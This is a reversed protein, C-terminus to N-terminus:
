YLLDATAEAGWAATDQSNQSCDEEENMAEEDNIKNNGDRIPTSQSTSSIGLARTVGLEFGESALDVKSPTFNSFGGGGSPLYITKNKM